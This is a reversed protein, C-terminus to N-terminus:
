SIEKNLAASYPDILGECRPCETILGGLEVIARAHEEATMHSPFRKAIVKLSKRVNPDMALSIIREQAEGEGNVLYDFAEAAEEPIYDKWVNM